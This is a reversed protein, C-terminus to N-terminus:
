ISAFLVLLLLLGIVFLIIIMKGSRLFFKGLFFLVVVFVVIALVFGLGGMGSVFGLSEFLNGMSGLLSMLTSVTNQLITAVMEFIVTLPAEVM